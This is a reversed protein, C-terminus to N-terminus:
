IEVTPGTIIQAILNPNTPQKLIGGKNRPNYWIDPSGSGSYGGKCILSGYIAGNGQRNLSGAIALVGDLYCSNILTGSKSTYGGNAFATYQDPNRGLVTQGSNIGQTSINGEVYLLGKWFFSSGINVTAYSGNAYKDIFIMRDSVKFTDRDSPILSDMSLQDLSTLLTNGTPSTTLSKTPTVYLKLGDFNTFYSISGGSGVPRLYAGNQIAFSKWTAYSLQTSTLDDVKGIMSANNQVLAGSFIAPYTQGAAPPDFLITSGNTPYSSNPATGNYWQGAATWVYQGALKIMNPAWGTGFDGRISQVFFDTVQKGGITSPTNTNPNTADTFIPVGSTNTLLGATNYKVWKEFLGSDTIGAGFFKSNGSGGASLTKPDTSKNPLSLALQVLQVNNKAWVPGWHINLSSAGQVTIAGGGFAVGSVPGLFPSEDSGITPIVLLKQQLTRVKRVGPGELVATAEVILSVKRLDDAAIKNATDQRYPTTIRINSVYSRINNTGSFINAKDMDPIDRRIRILKTASSGFDYLVKRNGDLTVQSSGLGSDYKTYYGLITSASMNLYINPNSHNDRIYESLEVAGSCIADMKNGMATGIQTKTPAGHNFIWYKAASLGSMATDYTEEYGFRDSTLRAGNRVSYLMAAIASLLLFAMILSM